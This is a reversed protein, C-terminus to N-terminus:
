NLDIRNVKKSKMESILESTLDCDYKLPLYYNQYAYCYKANRFWLTAIDNEFEEGLEEKSVLVVEADSNNYYNTVNQYNLVTINDLNLFSSEFTNYLKGDIMTIIGFYKEIYMKSFMKKLKDKTILGNRYMLRIGMLDKKYKELARDNEDDIRINEGKLIFELTEDTIEPRVEIIAFYFDDLPKELIIENIEDQTYENNM